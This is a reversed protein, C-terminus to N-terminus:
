SSMEKEISIKTERVNTPNGDIGGNSTPDYRLAREFRDAMKDTVEVSLTTKETYSKYGGRDLLDRAANLKVFESKAEDRLEAIKIASTLAEKKLFAETPDGSAIRDSKKEIVREKLQEEEIAKQEQYLPSNRIISVRNIGLGIEQAIQSASYGAIDMLMILKIKSTMRQPQLGITSPSKLHQPKIVPM